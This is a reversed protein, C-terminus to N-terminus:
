FMAYLLPIRDVKKANLESLIHAENTVQNQMRREIRSMDVVKVAVCIKDADASGQEM